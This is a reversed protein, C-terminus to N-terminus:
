VPKKGIMILAGAHKFTLRSPITPVIQGGLYLARRWSRCMYNRNPELLLYAFLNAPLVKLSTLGAVRLDELALTDTYDIEPVDYGGLGESRMRSRLPHMGSPVVSVVHGGPRALHVMKRWARRRLGEDLFHEVVGFNFVVDYQRDHEAELFDGELLQVGLSRGSASEVAAIYTRCRELVEKSVDIGTVAHGHFALPVLQAGGGCGFEFFSHGPRTQLLRHLRRWVRTYRALRKLLERNVCPPEYGGRRLVRQWLIAPSLERDPNAISSAQDAEQHGRNM